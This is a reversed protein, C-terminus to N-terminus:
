IIELNYNWQNENSAKSLNKINESVPIILNILNVSRPSPMSNPRTSKKHSQNKFYKRATTIPHSTEKITQIM